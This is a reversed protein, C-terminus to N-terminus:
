EVWEHVIYGENQEIQKLRKHAHYTNSRLISLDSLVYNWEEESISFEEDAQVSNSSSSFTNYSNWGSFGLVILIESLHKKFWAKNVRINFHEDSM